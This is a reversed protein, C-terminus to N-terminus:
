ISIVIMVAICQKKHKLAARDKNEVCSGV